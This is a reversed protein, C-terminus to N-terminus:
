ISHALEVQRQAVSAQGLFAHWMGIDLVLHPHHRMVEDPVAAAWKMRYSGGSEIPYRKGADEM